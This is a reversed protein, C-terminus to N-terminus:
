DLQLSDTLMVNISTEIIVCVCEVIVNRMVYFCISPSVKESVRIMPERGHPLVQSLVVTLPQGSCGKKVRFLDSHTVECHIM